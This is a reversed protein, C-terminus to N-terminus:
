NAANNGFYSGFPQQQHQQQQQRKLTSIAHPHNMDQDPGANLSPSIKPATPYNAPGFRDKNQAEYGGFGNGSENPM